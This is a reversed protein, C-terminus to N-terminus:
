IAMRTVAIDDFGIGDYNNTAPDISDNGYRQFKIQTDDSLTVGAGRGSRNSRFHLNPLHEDIHRRDPEHAPVM